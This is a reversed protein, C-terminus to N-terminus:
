RFWNQGIKLQVWPVCEPTIKMSADDLSLSNINFHLLPIFAIIHFYKQFRSCQMFCIYIAKKRKNINHLSGQKGDEPGYGKQEGDKLTHSIKSLNM